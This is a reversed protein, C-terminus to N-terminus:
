TAPAVPYSGLMLIRDSPEKAAELAAAVTPDSHHGELDILFFYKGMGTRTPRSEIKSLNIGRDAFETLLAMLSGPRDAALVLAISTKDRGTSAAAHRNLVVFRTVNDSSDQIDEAVIQMGYLQAARRNGIAAINSSHVLSQVAASTSLAALVQVQPLQQQLFERCQAVAAPISVVREVQSLGTGPRAVLHHRVPLNLEAVMPPPSDSHLLHDLTVNISGEISNEIPVIASDVLRHSVAAIAAPIDPFGVFEAEVFHQRAAEESFSGEPGLYAVRTM